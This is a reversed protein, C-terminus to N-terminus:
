AASALVRVAVERMFGVCRDVSSPSVGLDAAITARSTGALLRSLVGAAHQGLGHTSLRSLESVTERACVVDEPTTSYVPGSAAVPRRTGPRPGTPLKVLGARGLAVPRQHSAQQRLFRARRVSDHVRQSPLGSACRGDLVMTIADELDRAKRSGPSSNEVVQLRDYLELLLAWDPPASPGAVM